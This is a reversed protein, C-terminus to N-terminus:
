PRLGVVLTGLWAGGVAGALGGFPGLTMLGLAGGAVGGVTAAIPIAANGFRNAFWDGIRINWGDGGGTASARAAATPTSPVPTAVSAIM